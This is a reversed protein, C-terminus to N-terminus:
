PININVTENYYQNTEVASTYTTSYHESTDNPVWLHMNSSTAIYINQWINNKDYTATDNVLFSTVRRVKQGTGDYKLGTANYVFTQSGGSYSIYLSYQDNQNVYLRM